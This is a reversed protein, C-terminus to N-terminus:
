KELSLLFLNHLYLSQLPPPSSPEGGCFLIGPHPPLSFSIASQSIKLLGHFHFQSSPPHLLLVSIVTDATVWSPRPRLGAGAGTGEERWGEKGGRGGGLGVLRGGGDGWNRRRWTGSSCHGGAIGGGATRRRGEKKMFNSFCCLTSLLITAPAWSASGATRSLSLM